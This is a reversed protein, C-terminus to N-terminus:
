KAVEVEVEPWWVSYQTILAYTVLEGKKDTTSAIKGASTLFTVIQRKTMSAFSAALFDYDAKARPRLDPELWTTCGSKSTHGHPNTDFNPALREM